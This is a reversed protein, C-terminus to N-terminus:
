KRKLEKIEKTLSMIHEHYGQRAENMKTVETQLMANNQDIAHKMQNIQGEKLECLRNLEDREGQILYAAHNMTAALKELHDIKKDNPWSKYTKGWAIKPARKEILKDDLVKFGAGVFDENDVM